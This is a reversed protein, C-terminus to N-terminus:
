VPDSVCRWRPKVPLEKRGAEPLEGRGAVCAGEEPLLPLMKKRGAQIPPSVNGERAAELLRTFM